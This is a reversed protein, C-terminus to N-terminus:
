PTYTPGHHMAGLGAFGIIFIWYLVGLVLLGSGVMGCIRGANVNGLEAPNGTGANIATLANNGLLWAVPGLIPVCVISMIGLVLILTGNSSQQPAGYPSPFGPQPGSPPPPWNSPPVSM